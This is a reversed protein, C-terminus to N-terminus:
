PKYHPYQQASGYRASQPEVDSVPYNSAISAMSAKMNTNAKTTTDEMMAIKSTKHLMDNQSIDLSHQPPIEQIKLTEMERKKDEKEKLKKQEKDLQREKWANVKRGIASDPYKKAIHNMTAWGGVVLVLLLVVIIILALVGGSLGGEEALQDDQSTDEETM